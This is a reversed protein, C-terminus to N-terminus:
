ESLKRRFYNIQNKSRHSWTLQEAKKGVKEVMQEYRNSDTLIEEAEKISQAPEDWDVLIGTEQDTVWERILASDTAIVPLDHSYYDLLKLPVTLYKNFFTEEVPLLGMKAKSFYTRLESKQMWPLIEVKDTVQYKDLKLKLRETEDQTRAGIIWIKYGHNLSQSLQLINELGKSEDLSGTYILYSSKGINESEQPNLGTPFVMIDQQPLYREYLAKQHKNLCILGDLRKFFLKEVLHNKYKKRKNIDDRITLDYFFDHSEFILKNYTKRGALFLHPLLGLARTIVVTETNVINKLHKVVFRYFSFHETEEGHYGWVKLGAPKEAAFKQHIIKEAPTAASNMLFLHVDDHHNALSYANNIVFNASTSQSDINTTHIYILKM